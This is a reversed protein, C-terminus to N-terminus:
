LYVVVVRGAVLGELPASGVDSFVRVRVEQDGICCSGGGGGGVVSELVRSWRLDAVAM